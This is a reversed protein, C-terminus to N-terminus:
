KVYERTSLKITLREIKKKKELLLNRSEYSLFVSIQHYSKQGDFRWERTSLKIILRERLKKKKGLLLNRKSAM